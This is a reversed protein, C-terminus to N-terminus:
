GEGRADFESLRRILERSRKKYTLSFIRQFPFFEMRSERRSDNGENPKTTTKSPVVFEERLGEFTKSDVQEVLSFGHMSREPAESVLLLTSYFFTICPFNVSITRLGNLGSVQLHHHPHLQLQTFFVTLTQNPSLVM